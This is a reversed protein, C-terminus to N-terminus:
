SSATPSAGQEALVQKPLSIAITLANAFGQAYAHGLQCKRIEEDSAAYVLQQKLTDAQRQHDDCLSQLRSLYHDWNPDHTLQEARVQAQRLMARLPAEREAQEAKHQEEYAKWRSLDVPM